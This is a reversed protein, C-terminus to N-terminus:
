PTPSAASERVEREIREILAAHAARSVPGPAHPVDIDDIATIPQVERASSAIFAEEAHALDDLTCSREVAGSTEIILRRTISDLIHDELPPTLLEGDQVWFFTWTAGELVKGEPTVFLGEDFGREKALRGALMNAAYSLSKVGDLLITPRYTISAVRAAAPQPPLPEITIIRRGGRTLVVRIQGDVPGAVELLADTESQLADFDAPLRLNDASQRMRVIHEDHAFPVGKYLRSVEFVGDGRLLGEDTVPILAEESPGIVGDLSALNM